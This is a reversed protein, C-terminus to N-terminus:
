ENGDMGRVKETLGDIGVREIDSAFSNRYSLLISVNEFSADYIKWQGDQEHLSFVIIAPKKGRPTVQMRVDTRNYKDVGSNGLVKFTANTDYQKWSDSYLRILMSRFADVFADQQAPTAQSWYRGLVIRSMIKFDLYPLIETDILRNLAARDNRYLEPKSNVEELLVSAQQEVLAEAGAPNPAAYATLSFGLVAAAAMLIKKM